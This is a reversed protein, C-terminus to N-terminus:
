ITFVAIEDNKNAFKRVNHPACFTEMPKGILQDMLVQLDCLVRSQLVGNFDIISGVISQDGGGFPLKCFTCALKNKRLHYKGKM